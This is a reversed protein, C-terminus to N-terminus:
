LGQIITNYETVADVYEQIDMGSVNAWVAAQIIRLNDQDSESLEDALGGVSSVVDIVSEGVSDNVINGFRRAGQKSITPDTLTNAADRLLDRGRRYIMQSRGRSGYSSGHGIGQPPGRPRRDSSPATSHESEEARAKLILKRPSTAMSAAISTALNRTIIATSTSGLRQTPQYRVCKPMQFCTRVLQDVGRLKYLTGQGNM